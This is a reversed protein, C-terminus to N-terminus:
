YDGGSTWLDGVVREGRELGVEADDLKGVMPGEDDGVNGADDFSRVFPLTQSELEEAM